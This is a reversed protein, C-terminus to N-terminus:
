PDIIKNYYNQCIIKKNQTIVNVIQSDLGLGQCTTKIM